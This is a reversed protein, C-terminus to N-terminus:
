ILRDDIPNPENTVTGDFSKFPVSIKYDVYIFTPFRLRVKDILVNINQEIFIYAFECIV